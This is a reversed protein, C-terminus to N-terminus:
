EPIKMEMLVFIDEFYLQDNGKSWVSYSHNGEILLSEKGGLFGLVGKLVYDDEVNAIKIATEKTKGDGTMFIAALLNRFRQTIYESDIYNKQKEICVTTHLLTTLEVPNRGLILKGIQIVKNCQEKISAKDFERREPNAIFSLLQYNAQFLQGYYLYYCDMIDINEPNKNAKELLIPYFYPSTSDLVIAKIESCFENQANATLVLSLLLHFVFIKKM